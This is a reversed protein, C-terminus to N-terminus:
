SAFFRLSSCRRLFSSASRNARYRLILSSSSRLSRAAARRAFALCNALSFSFFTFAATLRLRRIFLRLTLGTRSRASKLATTPFVPPVLRSRGADSNLTCYLREFLCSGGCFCNPLRPPICPVLLPILSVSNSCNVFPLLM